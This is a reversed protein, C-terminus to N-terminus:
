SASEGSTWIRSLRFIMELTMSVSFRFSGKLSSTKKEREKAQTNRLTGSQSVSAEECM